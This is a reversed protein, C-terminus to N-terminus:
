ELKELLEQAQSQYFNGGEEAIPKLLAKAEAANGEALWSLAIYWPAKEPHQDAQQLAARAATTNGSELQCIGTQLFVRSRDFASLQDTDIAGYMPLAAQYDAATYKLDALRLLSDAEGLVTPVSPASYYQSFLATPNTAQSLMNPLFVLALLAIGAAVATIIMMRQRRRKQKYQNFLDRFQEKEEQIGALRALRVTRLYEAFVAEQSPSEDWQAEFAKQEEATMKGQKYKEFLPFIDNGEESMM